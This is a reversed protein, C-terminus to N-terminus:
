DQRKPFVSLLHKRYLNDTVRRGIVAENAALADLFRAGMEAAVKYGVHLLQRVNANFGVCGPEHAVAAVFQGATWRQVVAPAPLKARDIDIVTAYPKCLEDFRGLAKTYVEKAIVLGDGGAEALGTIEELWTTGATKLHVGAGTNGLRQKIHPYLSFKDSGSHVSLKLSDPLGFAKVAYAAVAVDDSFERAFQAVDGAYDVGKNFRGTFKPAITQAPVKHAALAALIMLLELPTQPDACEDMSVETIFGGPNRAHVHRFIRAAEACAAAYRAAIRKVAPEDIVFPKDIGSLQHTGLLPRCANTFAARAADSAPAGISEAVDITFFDCSDIFGDVNKLNIHDADVRYPKNWGAARVAADAAARTDRPSTGIISHERFSKNWVPTVAIGAEAAQELARLQAVGQRGFRDGTGISFRSLEM